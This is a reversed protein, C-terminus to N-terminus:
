DFYRHAEKNVVEVFKEPSISYLSASSLSCAELAYGAGDIFALDLFFSTEPVWENVIAEATAEILQSDIISGLYISYDILRGDSILCRVENDPNNVDSVLVLRPDFGIDNVSCFQSYFVERTDIVQGDFSKWCDIPRIFIRHLGRNFAESLSIIVGRNLNAFSLEGWYHMFNLQTFNNDQQQFCRYSKKALKYGRVSGNFIFDQQVKIGLMERQFLEQYDVYEVENILEIPIQGGQGFVDKEIIWKLKKEGNSKISVFYRGVRRLEIM